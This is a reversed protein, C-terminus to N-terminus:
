FSFEITGDGAIQATAAWEGSGVGFLTRDIVTSGTVRAQDGSIAIRADLMAPRSKGNLLLIGSIRYRDGGRHSVATSTFRAKPNAAVNLFSEGFLMEDRQKDATSASAMEITVVISTQNLAAPDFDVEGTWRSFTGEISTGSWRATFALSGGSDIAWLSSIPAEAKGVQDAPGEVNEPTSSSLNEHGQEGEVLLIAEVPPITTESGAASDIVPASFRLTNGILVLGIIAMISAGAVLLARARTELALPIMRELLHDAKVFQHRFAGAVHLVVLGVTLWALVVHLQEMPRHLGIGVPLHPWPIAGFLQTPVKIKATSVIIWGSLPGLIMVGYFAWHVLTSLTRAWGTDALTNPRQVVLRIILRAITLLLITIGLSKHLQYAAFQGTSGSQTDLTHGQGIQFALLGAIVWHLAIAWRSYSAQPM